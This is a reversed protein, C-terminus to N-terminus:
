FAGGIVVFPECAEESLIRDNTRALGCEVPCM